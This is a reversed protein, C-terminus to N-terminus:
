IKDNIVKTPTSGGARFGRTGGTQQVASTALIGTWQNRLDGDPNSDYQFSNCRSYIISDLLKEMNINLLGGHGTSWMGPDQRHNANFGLSEGFDTGGCWRQRLLNFELVVPCSGGGIVCRTPPTAGDGKVHNFDGQENDLDGFDQANGTTAITILAELLLPLTVEAFIGRTSNSAAGLTLVATALDGFDTSNGLSAM